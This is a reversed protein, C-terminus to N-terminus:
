DMQAVTVVLEERRSEASFVPKRLAVVRIKETTIDQRM